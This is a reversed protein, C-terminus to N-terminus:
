VCVFFRFWFIPKPKGHRSPPSQMRIKKTDELVENTDDFDLLDITKGGKINFYVVTNDDRVYVQSVLNDIIKQQYEKDNRDGKILEAVFEIIDKKNIKYGRELELLAEQYKLDNLIFPRVSICSSSICLIVPM